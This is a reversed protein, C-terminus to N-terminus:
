SSKNNLWQRIMEAHDRYHEFTNGSMADVLATGNLWKFRNPDSLAEDALSEIGQIVQEFVARSEALVDELSRSQNSEYIWANVQEEDLDSSWPAPTPKGGRQAAILWAVPRKEWATLHAVLDKVSWMGVVGPTTMRAAGIAALLKDWAEREDFLTQRLQQKNM